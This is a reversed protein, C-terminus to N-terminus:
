DYNCFCYGHDFGKLRASNKCLYSNCDVQAIDIDGRYPSLSLTFM